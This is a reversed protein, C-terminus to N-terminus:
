AVRISSAGTLLKRKRNKSPVTASSCITFTQIGAARSVSKPAITGPADRAKYNILGTDIPNTSTTTIASGNGTRYFDRTSLGAGNFCPDTAAPQYLDRNPDAFCRRSTTGLLQFNLVTQPNLKFRGDISLLKNHKEIFDYSTALVGLSSEKGVDRKLRLVAVYANKDLFRQISPLTVPDNREDESFNGPANDSAL